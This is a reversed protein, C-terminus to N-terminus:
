PTTKTNYSFNNYNVHVELLHCLTTIVVPEVAVTLQTMKHKTQLTLSPSDTAQGTNVLPVRVHAIPRHLHGNLRLTKEQNIM